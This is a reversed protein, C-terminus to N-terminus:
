ELFTNLYRESCFHVFVCLVEYMLQGMFAAQVIDVVRYKTSKLANVFM